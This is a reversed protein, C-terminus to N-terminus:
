KWIIISREAMWVPKYSAKSKKLFENGADDERSIWKVGPKNWYKWAIKQQIFQYLGRIKPNAKEINFVGLDCRQTVFSYAEINGNIYVALGPPTYEKLHDLVTSNAQLEVFYYDDKTHDPNLKDWRTVFEKLDKEMSSDIEKVVVDQSRHMKKFNNLHNRKKQMVRGGFTVFYKVPYIYEAIDPDPIIEKNFNDRIIKEVSRHAFIIDLQKFDKTLEDCRKIAEVMNERLTLPRYIFDKGNYNGKVFMWKDEVIFELKNIDRWMMIFLTNVTDDVCNVLNVYKDVLEWHKAELKQWM